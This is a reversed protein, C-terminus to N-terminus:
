CRRGCRRCRTPRRENRAQRRVRCAHIRLSGVAFGIRERGGPVDPFREAAHGHIILLRHRQNRAAVGEALGMASGRRRLVAARLGFTAAKLLLRGCFMKSRTKVQLPCLQNLGGQSRDHGVPPLNNMSTLTDPHDRGLKAKRTELTEESLTVAKALQGSDQYALALNNMSTLTDPHDPGLKAKQKEVTEEFLPV